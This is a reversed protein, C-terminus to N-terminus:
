EKFDMVLTRGGDESDVRTAISRILALGRGHKAGTDTARRGTMSIDFGDGDDTVSIRFGDQELPLFNVEVRRMSLEPDALRDSMLRSFQEFGERTSRLSGDIGLNGHISANGISESLCLEVMSIDEVKRRATIAEAFYHMVEYSCATKTSVSMCIGGRNVAEFGRQSPGKGVEIFGYYPLSLGKVLRNESVVGLLMPFQGDAWVDGEAVQVAQGIPGPVGLQKPASFGTLRAM